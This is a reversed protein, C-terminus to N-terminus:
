HTQCIKCSAKCDVAGSGSGGRRNRCRSSGRNLGNDMAEGLLVEDSKAMITLDIMLARVFVAWVSPNVSAGQRAKVGAGDGAAMRGQASLGMLVFAGVVVSECVRELNAVFGGKQSGKGCGSKRARVGRGIVGHTDSNGRNM